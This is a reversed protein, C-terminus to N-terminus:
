NSCQPDVSVILKTPPRHKLQTGQAKFTLRATKETGFSPREDREFSPLFVEISFGNKSRAAGLYHTNRQTTSWRENRAFGLPKCKQNFSVGSCSPRTPAEQHTTPVPLFIKQIGKERAQQRHALSRAAGWSKGGTAQM